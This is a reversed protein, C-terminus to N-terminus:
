KSGLLYPQPDYGIMLFYTPSCGLLQSTKDNLPFNVLPVPYQGVATYYLIILMTVIIYYIYLIDIIGSGTEESAKDSDGMM